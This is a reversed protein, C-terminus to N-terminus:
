ARGASSRTAAAARLTRREVQLRVFSEQPGPKMGSRRAEVIAAEVGIKGDLARWIAFMMAARSGDTCFLLVPGRDQRRIEALVRDVTEDPLAGSKKVELRLYTISRTACAAPLDFGAEDDPSSLDIAIGIGRRRALGLDSPSPRSGIWVGDIESVNSMSGLSAREASRVGGAEISTSGPARCAPAVLLLAPAFWRLKLRM